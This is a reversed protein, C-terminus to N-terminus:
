FMFCLWCIIIADMEEHRPACLTLNILFIVSIKWCWEITEKMRTVRKTLIRSCKSRGHTFYEWSLRNFWMMFNIHRMYQVTDCIIEVQILKFM